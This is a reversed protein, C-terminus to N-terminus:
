VIKNTLGVEFGKICFKLMHGNENLHVKLIRIGMQLFAGM